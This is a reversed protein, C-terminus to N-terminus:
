LTGGNQLIQIAQQYSQVPTPANAYGIKPTSSNQEQSQLLSILEQYTSIAQARQENMAYAYALAGLVNVKMSSDIKVANDFATVAGSSNNDNMYATGLASYANAKQSTTKANNVQTQASTVAEQLRQSNTLHVSNAVENPSKNVGSNHYHYVLLGGAIIAVIIVASASYFFWRPLRKGGHVADSTM